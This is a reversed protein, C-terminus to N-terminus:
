FIQAAGSDRLVAEHLPYDAKREDEDSGHM